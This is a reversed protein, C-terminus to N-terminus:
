PEAGGRRDGVIQLKDNLSWILKRDWTERGRSGEPLPSFYGKAGIVFLVYQPEDINRSKDVRRGYDMICVRFQYIWGIPRYQCDYLIIKGYNRTGPNALYAKFDEDRWRARYDLAAILFQEALALGVLGLLLLGIWRLVKRSPFVM